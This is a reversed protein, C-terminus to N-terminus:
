SIVLGSWNELYPDYEEISNLRSGSSDSGGGCYIKSKTVWAVFKKSYNHTEVIQILVNYSEVQNSHSGHRGFEIKLGFM